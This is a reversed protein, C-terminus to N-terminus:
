GGHRELIRKVIVLGVKTDLQSEVSDSLLSLLLDSSAIRLEIAM